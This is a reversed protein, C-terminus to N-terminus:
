VAHNRRPQRAPVMGRNLKPWAAKLLNRIYKQTFDTWRQTTQCKMNKQLVFRAIKAM